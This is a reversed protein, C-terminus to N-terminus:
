AESMTSQIFSYLLGSRRPSMGKVAAILEEENAVKEGFCRELWEPAGCKSLVQKSVVEGSPLEVAEKSFVDVEHMTTQFVQEYGPLFTDTYRDCLLTVRDVADLLAATKSLIEPGLLEGSESEEAQKFLEDLSDMEKGLSKLNGQMASKRQRLALRAASTTGVGYGALKHLGCMDANTLEATLEAPAAIVQRASSQRSLYPYNSSELIHAAVKSMDEPTSVHTVHVDDGIQFTVGYTSVRDASASAVKESSFDPLEIDWFEAAMSIASSIKDFTNPSLDGACKHLYASSLWTDAKTHVPFRRLEPYAFGKSPVDRLSDPDSVTAEKVFGPLNVEQSIQYLTVSNQDSTQDIM